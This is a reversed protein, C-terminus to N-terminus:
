VKISVDGSSLWAEEGDDYQVKLRFDRDIELAIGKINLIHSADVANNATFKGGVLNVIRGSVAAGDPNDVTIDMTGDTLSFDAAASYVGYTGAHITYHGDLLRVKQTGTESFIYIGIEGADLTLTGNGKFTVTGACSLAYKSAKIYNDGKLVVTCNKPLRLGYANETEIHIGDLTLIDFRNAWSYGNGEVNVNARSIDVTESIVINNGSVASVQVPLCASLLAFVTCLLILRHFRRNTKMSNEREM